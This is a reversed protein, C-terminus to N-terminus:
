LSSKNSWEQNSNRKRDHFKCKCNCSIHKILTKSENIKTIHKYVNLNVNEAKNPFCIRGSSDGLNNRSENCRDLSVM